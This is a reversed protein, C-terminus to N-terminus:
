RMIYDDNFYIMECKIELNEEGEKGECENKNNENKKDKKEDESCRDHTSHRDSVIFRMTCWLDISIDCIQLSINATNCRLTKM